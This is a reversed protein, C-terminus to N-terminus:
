GQLERYIIYLSALEWKKLSDGGMSSYYATKVMVISVDCQLEIEENCDFKCTDV